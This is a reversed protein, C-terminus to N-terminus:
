SIGIRMIPDLNPPHAVIDWHSIRLSRHATDLQALKVTHVADSAFQCLTVGTPQGLYIPDAYLRTQLPALRYIVEIGEEYILLACTNTVIIQDTRKLRIINTDFVAEEWTM